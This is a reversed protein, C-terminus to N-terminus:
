GALLDPASQEREVHAAVLTGFDISCARARSATDAALMVNKMQGAFAAGVYRQTSSVRHLDVLAVPRDIKQFYAGPELGVARHPMVIEDQLEPGLGIFHREEGVSPGDDLACRVRGQGAAQVGSVYSTLYRRRGAPQRAPM